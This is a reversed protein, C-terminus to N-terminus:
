RRRNKRIALISIAPNSVQFFLWNKEIDWAKKFFFFFIAFIIITQELRTGLAKGKQIPDAPFNLFPFARPVLNPKSKMSLKM